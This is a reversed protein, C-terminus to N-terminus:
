SNKAQWRYWGRHETDWTGDDKKRKPFLRGGEKMQGYSLTAHCKTCKKEYYDNGDITRVSFQTDENSCLGCPEAEFVENFRAIRKFIGKQTQGEVEVKLRGDSTTYTVRM